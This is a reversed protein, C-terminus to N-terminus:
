VCISPTAMPEGTLGMTDLRKMSFKSLLARAVKGRGTFIQPLYTSSVKTMMFDARLSCNMVCRFTWCGDMFNVVSSWTSFLNAISSTRAETACQTIEGEAGVAFGCMSVVVQFKSQLWGSSCLRPTIRVRLSLALMVTLLSLSFIWSSLCRLFTSENASYGLHNHSLGAAVDLATTVLPLLGTLPWTANGYTYTTMSLKGWMRWVASMMTCMHGWLFMQSKSTARLSRVSLISCAPTLLDCIPIAKQWCKASVCFTMFIAWLRWSISLIYDINQTTNYIECM